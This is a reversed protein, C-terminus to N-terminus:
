RYEAMPDERDLAAEKGRSITGDANIAYGEGKEIQSKVGKASRYEAADLQQAVVESTRRAM